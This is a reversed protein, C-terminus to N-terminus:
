LLEGARRMRRERLALILPAGWQTLMLALVGVSEWFPISTVSLDGVNNVVWVVLSVLFPLNFTVMLWGAGTMGALYALAFWSAVRRDHPSIDALETAETSTLRWLRDKVTLWTARYLNHCRLANALVAYGDSRLFVAAWQWTLSIVQTLVVAGLVRDVIPPLPLMDARYLLRLGLVTALVTADVAMGALFPSYRKRRPIAVIQTLDTEFVLFFGRRSIRFIAPVGVARGALWHWAEHTAALLLGVPVFALLSLVPDELFWADEFGPRLDPRAMFVALVSLAAGIYGTWAVPGFLRRAARPSVGEIWRIRRGATPPDEIGGAAPQLLLGAEVLSRLFDLGDVEEGATQSAQATAEALSAGDRLATVFVAGPEPVAVYLGLDPRGLVYENGDAAVVVPSVAQRLDAGAFPESNTEM